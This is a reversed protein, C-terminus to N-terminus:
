ACRYVLSRSRSGASFIAIMTMSLIIPRRMDRLSVMTADVDDLGRVGNIEDPQVSALKGSSSSSRGTGAALPSARDRSDLGEQAATSIMGTTARASRRPPWQAGSRAPCDCTGTCM